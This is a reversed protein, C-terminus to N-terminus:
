GFNRSFSPVTGIVGPTMSWEPNPRFVTIDVNTGIMGNNFESHDIGGCISQLENENLLMNQMIKEEENIHNAM